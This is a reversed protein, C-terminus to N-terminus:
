NLKNAPDHFHDFEIEFILSMMCLISSYYVHQVTRMSYNRWAHHKSLVRPIIELKYDKPYEYLFGLPRDCPLEQLVTRYLGFHM